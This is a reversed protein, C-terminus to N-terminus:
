GIRRHTNANTYQTIEEAARLGSLYAGHVTAAYASSTAEGAFFLRNAVPEALADRTDGDTGPRLYSYSGWAFPDSAWRTIQYAEPEPIDPGYITRLRTMAEAVIEEDSLKEIARGYNGANFLLLVPKGTYHAFNLTENWEGKVPSIYGLLEAEVPWFVRSFRLYLKNLLGMGLSGIAAQKAPPLPPDFRVSGKQLVGLPLTIVARGARFSGGACEVTVGGDGYAVASVPQGLRIDLGEALFDAIQGYGGPFIVDEGDFGDGDDWAFLSLDAIDAAYEHEVSSNIFYDLARRQRPSLPRRALHDDVARQISQDTDYEDNAAELAAEFFAEAEAELADHEDDELLRGDSDYLWLNDYDTSLTRIQQEAAIEAIPNEEVGHIWSAGMDVPLDLWTTDTWVRGGIRERAELVIVRRGAAQLARAAALGAMGAGIVLVDAEKNEDPAPGPSGPRPAPAPTVATGGCAALSLGLWALASQRLFHRRSPLPTSPM